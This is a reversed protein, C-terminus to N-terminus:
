YSYKLHSTHKGISLGVKIHQDATLVIFFFCISAMSYLVKPRQEKTDSQPLRPQCGGGSTLMRTLLVFFYSGHLFIELCVCFSLHVIKSQAQSLWIGIRFTYWNM